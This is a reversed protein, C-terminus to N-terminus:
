SLAAMVIQMARHVAAAFAEVTKPGKEAPAPWNITFSLFVWRNDFFLGGPTWVARFGPADISGGKHVRERRAPRRLM